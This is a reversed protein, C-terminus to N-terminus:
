QPGQAGSDPRQTPKDADVPKTGEQSGAGAGDTTPAPTAATAAAGGSSPNANDKPTVAAAPPQAAPPVPWPTDKGYGPLVLPGKQGCAGLLLLALVPPWLRHEAAARVVAAFNRKM